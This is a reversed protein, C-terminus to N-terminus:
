WEQVLVTKVNRFEYIGFESLERNGMPPTVTPSGWIQLVDVSLGAPGAAFLTHRQHRRLESRVGVAIEVRIVGGPGTHTM